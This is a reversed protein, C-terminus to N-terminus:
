LGRFTPQFVAQQPLNKALIDLILLKIKQRLHVETSSSTLCAYSSGGIMQRPMGLGNVTNNPLITYCYLLPNPQRVQSQQCYTILEIFVQQTAGHKRHELWILIINVIPLEIRSKNRQKELAISLILHVPEFPYCSTPPPPPPPPSHLNLVNNVM